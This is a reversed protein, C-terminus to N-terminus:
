STKVVPLGAATWAGIGGLVSIVNEYGHRLLISSAITSRYGSGCVVALPRDRPIEDTRGPLLGAHVHHAGDIHGGAWESDSRVDLVFPRDDHTGVSATGTAGMAGPATAATTTAALRGALEHVPM